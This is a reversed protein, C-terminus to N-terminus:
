KLCSKINALKTELEKISHELDTNRNYLEMKDNNLRKCEEKLEKNAGTLEKIEKKLEDIDESHECNKIAEEKKNEINKSTDVDKIVKGDKVEKEVHRVQEGDKYEDRKYYYSKSNSKDDFNLSSDVFSSFLSSAEDILDFLNKEM